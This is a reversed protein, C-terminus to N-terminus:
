FMFLRQHRCHLLFKLIQTLQDFTIVQWVPSGLIIHLTCIFSFLSQGVKLSEFGLWISEFHSSIQFMPEQIHINSIRLTASWSVNRPEFYEPEIVAEQRQRVCLTFHLISVHELHSRASHNLINISCWSVPLRASTFTNSVNFVEPAEFTYDPVCANTPSSKVWFKAVPFM